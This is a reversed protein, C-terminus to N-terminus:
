LKHYENYTLKTVQEPSTYPFFGKLLLTCIEIYHEEDPTIYGHRLLLNILVPQCSAKFNLLMEPNKTLTNVPLTAFASASGDQSFPEFSQPLFLDFMFPTFRYLNYGKQEWSSVVGVPTAQQALEYPMETEEYAEKCLNELLTLGAPQGGCVLHDLKGPASRNESRRAYWMDIRGDERRVLGNLHVGFIRIGWFPAAYRAMEFLPTLFNDVTVRYMEGAHSPTLLGKQVLAENLNQFLQTLGAYDHLEATIIIRKEKCTICPHLTAVTDKYVRHVFGILQDVVYVSFFDNYNVTNRARLVNIIAKTYTPNNM